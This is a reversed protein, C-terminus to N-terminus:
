IHILSLRLVSWKLKGATYDIVFYLLIYACFAAAYIGADALKGGIAYNVCQLMVYALGVELLCDVASVLLFGIFKLRQNQYLYHFMQKKRGLLCYLASSLDFFLDDASIVVTM